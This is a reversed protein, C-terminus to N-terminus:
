RRATSIGDEASAPGVALGAASVPGMSRGITSLPGMSRGITSLPGMPPGVTSMPGMPRCAWPPNVLQDIRDGRTKGQVHAAHRQGEIRLVRCVAFADGTQIPVRPDQDVFRTVAPDCDNGIDRAPEETM